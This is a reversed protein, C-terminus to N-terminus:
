PQFLQQDTFQACGTWSLSEDSLPMCFGLTGVTVTKDTVHHKEIPKDRFVKICLPQHKLGIM